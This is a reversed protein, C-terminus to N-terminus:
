VVETWKGFSKKSIKFFKKHNDPYYESPSDKSLSIVDDLSLLVQSNTSSDYVFIYIPILKQWELLEQMDSEKIKVHDAQGTGKCEIAVPDGDKSVALFDPTARIFSNIKFYKPFGRDFGYKRFYVNHTKAWKEFAGEAIDGAIQM